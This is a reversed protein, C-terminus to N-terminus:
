FLTVGLFILTLKEGESGITSSLRADKLPAVYPEIKTNTRYTSFCCRRNRCQQVTDKSNQTRRYYWPKQIHDYLLESGNCLM